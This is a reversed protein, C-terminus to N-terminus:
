DGMFDKKKEEEISMRIGQIIREIHQKHQLFQVEDLLPLLSEFYDSRGQLMPVASGSWGWSNPELSLKSFAEFSKNYDLFIAVFQRRRETSCNAVVSSIFEMFDLNSHQREILSKLLRDQKEVIEPYKKGNERLVFFTKLYTHTGRFARQELEHEFIREAARMMLREYDDRMWLFAYDRNDDRSNPMKEIEYVHDIYELIFDPEIDLIRSFSQGDYDMHSEIKLVAFYAQKLLNKNNAFIDILEQNIDAYRNFLSSLAYAYFPDAMAKELIIGTVRVVVKNDLSRYKLLFDLSRPLETGNAEQFLSYLKDLREPTVDVMSLTMYYGFMWIRKSPNNPWSLIEYSREAKCIETLKEILRLSLPMSTLNLPDGLKLYYELVDIFLDPERDAVSLLINISEMQIQYGMHSQDLESYIEICLRFFQEYDSFSFNRFHEDILEKKLQKYEDHSLGLNKKESRDSFLLKSLKYAENNFKDVLTKDFLICNSGLLELYEHVRVCHRYSKPNLELNIFSLVDLADQAVIEKVSDPYNSICYNGLINPVRAKFASVQYLCFINVWITRRLKFLEPTPPLKFNIMSFTQRDKLEVTHFNIQLYNEAVSLFIESFLKDQRKKAFKWLIDIVEQQIRFGNIYSKHTFGFKETLIHLLQPIEDPRKAIYDFLLTLAIRFSANDGYKFSSLVRLLSPSPIWTNAKFEIKYPDVHKVDIEEIWTKIYLLTDTPKLFWFVEMLHLFSENEDIEKLSEWAKDVDKHMAEEIAEKNFTNLIPNITDVLRHPLTGFKRYNSLGTIGCM